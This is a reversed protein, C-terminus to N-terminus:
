EDAGTWAAAKQLDITFRDDDEQIPINLDAWHARDPEAELGSFLSANDEGAYKEDDELFSDYSSLSSIYNGDADYIIAGSVFEGNDASDVQLGIHHADPRDKLISRAIVAVSALETDRRARYAAAQNLGVLKGLDEDSLQPAQGTAAALVRARARDAADTMEQRLPWAITDHTAHAWKQAAEHIDEDKLWENEFSENEIDHVDDAPNWVEFVPEGEISVTTTIVNNEGVSYDVEPEPLSEPWGNLEPRRPTLSLAPEAHATAAFQGGVPVGKPQRATNDTM